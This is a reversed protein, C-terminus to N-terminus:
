PEPLVAAARREQRFLLVERVIIQVTAAVPVAVVAGVIGALEVCFLVALLTVLPNVHVTRKFVLPAMVNGELQGYLLFYIFVALAKWLGGTALTLLTIIGGAIIPGAYPVLSSFGSAVGLPLYFPMGLVALMTTTLTANIACILTIGSLYGGTASYVNRLVRVYRLRHDPRALDLLRRLVGGGFVLMFVVLFFVTIIGGLLGVVGGIASMLLSPLPGALAPTAEELRENWGLSQLRQNLARLIGTGRVQKWLHPWQTVLADVQEVLNPIVLLGLAVVAIFLTLLVLTISLWRKLGRKELRSVGHELSLAILAAIGTLTLAVRTKAVLVVLLMVGLVGFCVTFVTRLSVQSKSQPPVVPESVPLAGQPPGGAAPGM